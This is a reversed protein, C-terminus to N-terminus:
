KAYRVVVAPAPLPANLEMELSGPSEQVSLLEAGLVQVDTYTIDPHEITFQQEVPGTVIAYLADDSETYRLDRGSNNSFRKWPRTNYIAEGNIQMWHGLERLPAQQIQPIAGHSDPGVNILVNGNKSVTDALYTILESGSLMDDSNERRNFGFSGGLGRTSEWTFPAIESLNSYETTKFGVREPDDFVDSPQNELSWAALSKLLWTGGPWDAIQGLVDVPAWRDNVAGDPVTQFYHAFLDDIKGKSPYGIDAWFVAPKYRDILEMSQQYAYDAYSQSEPASRMVDRVFDGENVMKFSWDLGTSYYVGFRMGRSRVAAALEGVLDRPSHWDERHPHDVETPWLSYGDHHKTVLVVYRAGVREFKAAWADPDWGRDVNAEFEPQFNEYPADNYQQRHFEATESDPYAKTNLYWESYPLERRPGDGLLIEELDGPQLPDGSAFAPVSPLGWHIFIGLKADEFWTPQTRSRQHLEESLPDACATLLLVSALMSTIRFLNM